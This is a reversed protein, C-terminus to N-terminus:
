VLACFKRLKFKIIYKNTSYYEISIGAFIIFIYIDIIFPVEILIHVFIRTIILYIIIKAIYIFTINHLFDIFATSINLVLFKTNIMINKIMMKINIMMM